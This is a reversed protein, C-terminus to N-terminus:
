RGLRGFMDATVHGLLNLEGFMELEKVGRHKEM